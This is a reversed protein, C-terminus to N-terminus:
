VGKRHCNVKDARNIILVLNVMSVPRYLDKIQRTSSRDEEILFDSWSKEDKNRCSASSFIAWDDLHM